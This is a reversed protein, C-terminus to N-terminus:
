SYPSSPRSRAVNASLRCLERRSNLGYSLLDPVGVHHVVEDDFMTITWWGDRSVDIRIRGSIGKFDGATSRPLPQWPGIDFLPLGEIDPSVHDAELRGLEGRYLPVAVKSPRGTSRDLGIELVSFEPDSLQWYVSPTLRRGIWVTLHTRLDLTTEIEPASPDTEKWTLRSAQDADSV